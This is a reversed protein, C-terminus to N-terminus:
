ESATVLPKIVTIKKAVPGILFGWRYPNWDEVTGVTDKEDEMFVVGGVDEAVISDAAASSDSPVVFFIMTNKLCIETGCWCLNQVWQVLAIPRSLVEEQTKGNVKEITGKFIVDIIVGFSRENKGANYKVQKQIVLGIRYM